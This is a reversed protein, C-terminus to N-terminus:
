NNSNSLLPNPTPQSRSIGHPQSPISKYLYRSPPVGFKQKFQKSFLYVNSYGLAEAVQSVNLPTEMLLHLARELRVKTIYQKLSTGTYKKFLLSVYEPSLQVHDALERHTFRKGPQESIYSVIRSIRQRHMGADEPEKQSRHLTLLLQKMILDYELSPTANKKRPVVQLLRNLLLEFLVPDRVLTYRDPVLPSGPPLGSSCEHFDFHFYIVNLRNDPDQEAELVDGPYILCCSGQGVPFMNENITISGKGSLVYWLDYDKLPRRPRWIWGPECRAKGSSSGPVIRVSALWQEEKQMMSLNVELSSHTQRSSTADAENV